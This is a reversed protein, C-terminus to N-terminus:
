PQLLQESLLHAKIALNHGRESDGAAVAQRSQETFEKIQNLTEEQDANLQRGALKKLNEETAAALQETSRQDSAQQSPNGGMLEIKPDNSGGDRVIKKPPPCPKAPTQTSKDSNKAANGSQPPSDNAGGSPQAASEAKKLNGNNQLVANLPSPASQCDPYIAKKSRVYHKAPPKASNTASPTQASPVVSPATQTQAASAPKSSSSNSDSQQQGSISNALAIIPYNFSSPLAKVPSFVGACLLCGLIAALDM